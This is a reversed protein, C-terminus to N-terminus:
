RSDIIDGFLFTSQRSFRGTPQVFAALCPNSLAFGSRVYRRRDLVLDRLLEHSVRLIEVSFSSFQSNVCLIVTDVPFVLSQLRQRGSLPLRVLAGSVFTYVSRNFTQVGQRRAALQLTWRLPLKWRANTIKM